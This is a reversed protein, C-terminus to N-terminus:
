KEAPYDIEALLAEIQASSAPDDYRVTVLKTEIQGEVSRVGALDGLETQITHICHACSINPIKYTLTTM